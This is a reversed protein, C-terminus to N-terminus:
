FMKAYMAKESKKSEAEKKTCEAFGDRVEKSKPDDYNIGKVLAHREDESEPAGYFSMPHYYADEGFMVAMGLGLRELLAVALTSKGSGSGGSMAILFAQKKSMEFARKGAFPKGM